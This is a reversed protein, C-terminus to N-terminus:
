GSGKPHHPWGRKVNEASEAWGAEPGEPSGWGRGERRVGERPNWGMAHNRGDGVLEHDVLM